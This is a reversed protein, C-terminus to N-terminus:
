AARPESPARTYAIKAVQGDADFTITEAADVALREGAASLWTRTYAFEVTRPDDDLPAYRDGSGSAIFPQM